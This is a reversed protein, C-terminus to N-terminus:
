VDDHEKMYLELPSVEKHIVSSPDDSELKEVELRMHRILHEIEDGPVPESACFLIKSATTDIIENLRKYFRIGGDSDTEKLLVAFENDSLVYADDFVRMCKKIAAAATFFDQQSRGKVGNDEYSKLSILGLVFTSGHRARRELEVGFDKMLQSQANLGSRIILNQEDTDKGMNSFILQDCTDMIAKNLEELQTKVEADNIRPTEVFKDALKIINEVSNILDDYYASQDQDANSSNQLWDLLIYPPKIAEDGAVYAHFVQMYWDLLKKVILAVHDSSTKLEAMLGGM